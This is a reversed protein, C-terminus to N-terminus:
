LPGLIPTYSQRHMRLTFSTLRPRFYDHYSSSVTVVRSNDTRIWDSSVLFFFAYMMLLDELSASSCNRGNPLQKLIDVITAFVEGGKYALLAPAEVHEMDAIEHHLKIFRVAAHKRAITLLCDEVISSEASQKDVSDILVFCGNM